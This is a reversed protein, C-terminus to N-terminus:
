NRNHKEEEDEIRHIDAGVSTLKQEIQEYGRDIYEIKDITTTGKAALAAIVLAAGGRLDHCTVNAGHYCNNKGYITAVQKAAVINAGMKNFEPVHGFRMEFMNETISFKGNIGALFAMTQSQLDTAFKPYPGTQINCSSCCLGWSGISITDGKCKIKCGFRMLFDILRQNHRANTGCLKVRGGCLAVALM